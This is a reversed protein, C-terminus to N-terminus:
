DVNNAVHQGSVSRVQVAAAGDLEEVLKAVRRAEPVDPTFSHWFRSAEVALVRATAPDGLASHVRALAAIVVAHDPSMMVQRAQYVARARELPGRADSYRGAAVLAIGLAADAGARTSPPDGSAVRGVATEARAIAEQRRGALGIVEAVRADHSAQGRRDWKRADLDAIERESEAIRGLRALALARVSRASLVYPNGDNSVARLQAIAQDLVGLADLPQQAALESMALGIRDIGKNFAEADGSERDEIDLTERYAEIAGRIDGADLRATALLSTSSAVDPHSAGLLAKMEPVVAELQSLGERTHGENVLARGLLMQADLVDATTRGAAARRTASIADRAAEVQGDARAAALINAYSTYAQAVASPSVIEPAARADAIAARTVAIAAETQGEDFLASGLWHEGSIRAEIMDRRRLDARATAAVAARLEAVADAIRGLEVLTEGYTIRAAITTPYGDGLAERGVRVAELAADGGEATAGQGVLGYAITTLLETRIAPQGTLETDVRRRASKLLDVATTAAGAGSDTDADAFISLVFSKVQEARDAQLRAQKAQWLAVATGAILVAFAFSTSAVLARYRRLFRSISYLRAGERASVPEHRLSRAVDAQLDAVAQYRRSPEKRVAKAVIADLDGRLLRPEVPPDRLAAAYHSPAPPDAHLVKGFATLLPMNQLKWPPEGTLLEFLLVGLAYVDTATTVAGMTLQEPAAYDPTLPANRTRDDLEKGVLKAVGFDLLKVDGAVTVMVNAPKLDRHVVLNRHAYSVAECIALFMSLRRELGCQHERCWDLIPRGDILEMVMFPRGDSAVGGDYLRAIGPHELRALIQREAHFRATHAAAERQMLKLAVQQEFQGDAREARYVEGMGGRGILALIRYAGIQEGSNLSSYRESAVIPATLPRDLLSDAGGAVALLSNIERQLEADGGAIRAAAAQWQDEPLALIEDLAAEVRTWQTSSTM